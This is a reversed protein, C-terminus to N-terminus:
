ASKPTATPRRFMRSLGNSVKRYIIGPLRFPYSVVNYATNFISSATKKIKNVVKGPFETISTWVNRLSLRQKKIKQPEAAHAGSSKRKAQQKAEEIAQLALEKREEETLSESAKRVNEVLEKVQTQAGADQREASPEVAPRAPERSIATETPPEGAPM